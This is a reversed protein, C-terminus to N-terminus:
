GGIGVRRLPTGVERKRLCDLLRQLDPSLPAHFEVVKGTRPHNFVIKQAHLAQRPFDALALPVTDKRALPHRKRGYTRDGVIPHGQDALHVRIQHTRGTFPKLRLWTVWSFSSGDAGVRFIDEVRWETIAERLRSISHRSSMRKRDTRHRGIPRDIIGTRNQIRGWVLALYEKQVKRDRFQTALYHFARGHKAVVMVGSTDKDLRHVIGPRREGGIGQIGPCHYLLANVLTGSWRGAAPHVVMGPAKNVVICDDDEYLIDLPLSQPELSTDHPVPWQIEIVDSLKLRAGPKATRSNLTVYGEVIMKQIASRSFGAVGSSPSLNRTLFLDLRTGVDRRDIVSLGSSM